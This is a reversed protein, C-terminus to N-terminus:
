LDNRGKEFFKRREEDTMSELAKSFKSMDVKNKGSM